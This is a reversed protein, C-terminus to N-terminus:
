NGVKIVIGFGFRIEEKSWRGGLRHPMWDFQAVRIAFRDGANVDVGGGIGMAFGSESSGGGKATIGGFLVHAFVTAIDKRLSFRPGFLYEYIQINEGGFDKYQGGVEGVIGLSEHLNGAVSAQFGYFQERDGNGVSFLSFGGFVETTPYDQAVAILPFCLIVVCFMVTKRM